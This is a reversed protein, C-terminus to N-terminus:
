FYDPGIIEPEEVLSIDFKESVIKIIEKTALKLDTFDAHNPNTLVLANKTYIKIHDITKGKLGCKEILWGASLKVQDLDAPFTPMDPYLKALKNAQALSVVPNSFFSGVNPLEEPDPLRSSRVAIVAQRIQFLDPTKIHHKLLYNKLSEYTPPEPPLKSLKLTISSIIFRGRHKSKFMSNRYSFECQDNTLIIFKQIELDYAELEVLTDKIEQGYAGVNQIPTAGATGPILSMAEIGALGDSVAREVVSDWHEGAGIKIIEYDEDSSVLEYGLIEIKIILFKHTGDSFILNSGEGLIFIPLKRERAWDIAEVLDDKSKIHAFNSARGGVRFTCYDQLLIDHQILSDM